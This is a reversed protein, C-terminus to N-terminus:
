HMTIGPVFNGGLQGPVFQGPIFQGTGPIFQGAYPSGPIQGTQQVALQALQQAALLHYQALRQLLHQLSAPNMQEPNIQPQQWGGAPQQQWGGASQAPGNASGNLASTGPLHQLAFPQAAWQQLTAQHQLAPPLQAQQQAPHQWNSIQPASQGFIPTLPPYGYGYLANAFPIGNSAGSVGQFGQQGFSGQPYGFGGQPYGFSGQPYFNGQPYFMAAEM